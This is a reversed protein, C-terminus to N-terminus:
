LDASHKNNQWYNSFPKLHNLLIHKKGRRNAYRLLRNENLTYKEFANNYINSLEVGKYIQFVPKNSLLDVLIKELTVTPVGSVVQLPAESILPQVIYVDKKEPMFYELENSSPDLYARVGFENLHHFVSEAADKEVEALNYFRGSQHVTFENLVSTNWMCIELYPFNTHLQQYVSILHDPIEPKYHEEVGLRFKGRGM